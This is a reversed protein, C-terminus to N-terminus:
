IKVFWGKIFDNANFLVIIGSNKIKYLSKYFNNQSKKRYKTSYYISYPPIKTHLRNRINGYIQQFLLLFLRSVNLEM